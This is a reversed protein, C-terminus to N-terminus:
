SSTRAPPWHGSTQHALAGIRGRRYITLSLQKHQKNKKEIQSLIYIPVSQHSILNQHIFILGNQLTKRTRSNESAETIQVHVYRKSASIYVRLTLIREDFNIWWDKVKYSLINRFGLSAALIYSCINMWWFNLKWCNTRKIMYIQLSDEFGNRFQFNIYSIKCLSGVIKSFM